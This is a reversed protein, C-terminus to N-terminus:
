VATKLDASHFTKLIHFSIALDNTYKFLGPASATGQAGLRDEQNCSQMEAKASTAERTSKKFGEHQVFDPSALFHLVANTLM